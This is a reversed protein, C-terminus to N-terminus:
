LLNRAELGERVRDIRRGQNRPVLFGFGDLSHEVDERRYGLCVVAVPAYPLAELARAMEPRSVSFLSAARPARLTGAHVLTLRSGEGDVLGFGAVRTGPDIGIIRM